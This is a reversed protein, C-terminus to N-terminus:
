AYSDVVLENEVRRVEPSYRAVHEVANKEAWSRITGTLM